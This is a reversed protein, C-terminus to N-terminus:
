TKQRVTNQAPAMTFPLSNEYNKKTFPSYNITFLSYHITVEGGVGRRLALPAAYQVAKPTSSIGAAAVMPPVAYPHNNKFFYTHRNGNTLVGKQELM